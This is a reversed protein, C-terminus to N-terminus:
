KPITEAVHESLGRPRALAPVVYLAAVLAPALGLLVSLGLSHLAPHRGLALAGFGVLTTLGSVTVAQGVTRALPGGATTTMFVGYDVGLGIVLLNAGVTFLNVPLSMLGMAGYMAILGTAVPLLCLLVRRLSRLLGALMAVVAAAALIGFLAMDKEVVTGIERNLRLTSVHIVGLREPQERRSMARLFGADDPVLSLIRTRSDSQAVLTDVFPGAPGTRIADLGLPAPSPAELAEFFEDFADAAFGLRAARDNLRWRLRKAGAGEHWFRVWARRNSQQVEAPLALPAISLVGSALGERNLWQWLRHNAGMAENADAGDCAIIGKGRPDGWTEAVAREDALVEPARVGVNRLETDMRVRTAFAACVVLGVLWLIVVVARRPRRAPGPADQRVLAGSARRGVFHPLVFLSFAWGGALGAVALVGVARQGPVSSAIMMAFAGITTAACLTLPGALRRLARAPAHPECRLTCFVHLGFDAAIGLVIAGFGLAIANVTQFIAAVTAYGVVLAVLPVVLVFAVRWHRLFVALIVAVGAASLPLVRALDAQITRTNAVTHRHGCVYRAHITPPVHRRLLRDMAETVARAGESDTVSVHTRAVVMVHRRDPSVFHGDIIRTDPAIRLSALRGLLEARLHLPDRRVLRKAISSLPGNLMRLNARLREDIEEDGLRAEFRRLDEESLLLPAHRELWLLLELQEADGPATLAHSFLPSDMANVLADAAKTLEGLRSPDSAHLDVIISRTFPSDALVDFWQAAEGEGSPLLSRVDERLPARYAVGAMVTLALLASGALLARRRRWFGFSRAVLNVM